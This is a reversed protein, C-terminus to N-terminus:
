EATIQQALAIAGLIGAQHGLAPPVIYDPAEELIAAVNLYGQLMEKVERRVLPFLHAQAMVGGGLIIRQPSLICIINVLGSALYHAEL